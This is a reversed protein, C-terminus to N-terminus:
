QFFTLEGTCLRGSGLVFSSFGAKPLTDWGCWRACGGKDKKKRTLGYTM